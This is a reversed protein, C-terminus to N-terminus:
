LWTLRSMPAVSGVRARKGRQAFQPAGRPTTGAARSCRLVTITTKQSALPRNMGSQATTAFWRDFHKMDPTGALATMQHIIAEPEARAVAEGIGVADLGDVVVAEAGLARLDVVKAASRTTATVQHGKAILQPVLRKGIAGTAGALFVRM